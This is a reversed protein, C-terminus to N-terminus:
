YLSAALSVQLSCSLSLSLLFSLTIGVNRPILHAIAIRFSSVPTHPLPACCRTSLLPNICLFPRHSSFTDSYAGTLKSPTPVWPLCRRRCVSAQGNLLLCSLHHHRGLSSRGNSENNFTREYNVSKGHLNWHFKTLRNVELVSCRQRLSKRTEELRRRSRFSRSFGDVAKM